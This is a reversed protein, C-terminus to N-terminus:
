IVLVIMKQIPNLLDDCEFVPFAAAAAAEVPSATV